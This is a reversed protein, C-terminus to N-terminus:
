AVLPGFKIGLVWTLSKEVMQQELELPVRSKWGGCTGASMDGYRCVSVCMHGGFLVRIKKFIDKNNEVTCALSAPRHAKM